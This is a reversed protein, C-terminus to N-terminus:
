CLSIILFNTKAMARLPPFFYSGLSQLWVDGSTHTQLKLNSDVSLKKYHFVPFLPFTM